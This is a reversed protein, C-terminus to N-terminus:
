ETESSNGPEVTSRAMRGNESLDRDSGANRQSWREAEATRAEIEIGLAPRRSAHNVCAKITGIDLV